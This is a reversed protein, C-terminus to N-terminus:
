IGSPFVKKSPRGFILYQSSRVVYASTFVFLGVGIANSRKGYTACFLCVANPFDCCRCGRCSAFPYYDRFFFDM